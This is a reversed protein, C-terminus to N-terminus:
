SRTGTGEPKGAIETIADMLPLLLNSSRRVDVVRLRKPYDEVLHTMPYGNGYCYQIVKKESQQLHKLLIDESDTIIIDAEELSVAADATNVIGLVQALARELPGKTEFDVLIKM